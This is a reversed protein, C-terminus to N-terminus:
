REREVSINKKELMGVECLMFSKQKIGEPCKLKIAFLHKKATV